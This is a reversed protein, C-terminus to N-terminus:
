FSQDYNFQPLHVMSLSNVTKWRIFKHGIPLLGNGPGTIVLNIKMHSSAVRSKILM